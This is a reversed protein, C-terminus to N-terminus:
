QFRHNEQRMGPFDKHLTGFILLSICCVAITKLQWASPAPALAIRGDLSQSPWLIHMQTIPYAFTLPLAAFGLVSPANLAPDYIYMCTYKYM